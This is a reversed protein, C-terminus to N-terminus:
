VITDAAIFDTTGVLTSPFARGAGWVIRCAGSGGGGAGGSNTSARGAGGAGVQVTYSQGPVVAINNKWGLGGGGGSIVAAASGLYAVFSCPLLLILRGFGRGQASFFTLCVFVMM